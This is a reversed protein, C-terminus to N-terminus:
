ESGEYDSLIEQLLPRIRPIDQKVVQWVIQLDVPDYGHIIRDRMGAMSKWPIEPYEQRLALPLRKSAESTTHSTAWSCSPVTWLM